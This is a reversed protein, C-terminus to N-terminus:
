PLEPKVFRAQHRPWLRRSLGNVLVKQYGIGMLTAQAAAWEGAEILIELNRLHRWEPEKLWLTQADRLLICEIGNGNLGRVIEILHARQAKCREGHSTLHDRLQRAPSVAAVRPEQPEPPVLGKAALRNAVAPLLGQPLAAAIIESWVADDSAV